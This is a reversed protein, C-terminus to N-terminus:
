NSPACRALVNVHGMKRGVRAEQKGYLHLKAYPNNLIQAREFPEKQLWLDGLLNHMVVPTHLHVSGLPLGCVARIAQEFQSTVCADMTYHGSNHPRPALENVLLEDSDTVFFEVALLGIVELQEALKKALNQAELQVADSLRAPVRSTDLIHNHHENEAVPFVGVEGQRSRAVIVSCEAKFPIWKELVGVPSDLQQWIAACDPANSEIKIQGKGDYGWCATKLVAPTGITQLAAQLQEASDVVAFPACSVGNDRLFQKELGRNQCIELVRASPCVQAFQELHQVAEIPIGEFELTIVDCDAAFAELATFDKYDNSHLRDAIVGAPCNPDPDFVVFRCGLCRGALILMRALQGGGLIGIRPGKLGHEPINM